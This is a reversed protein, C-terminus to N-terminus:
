QGLPQACAIGRSNLIGAVVVPIGGHAECEDIQQKRDAARDTQSQGSASVIFLAAIALVLLAFVMELYIRM